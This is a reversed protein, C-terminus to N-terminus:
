GGSPTQLDQALKSHSAWQTALDARLGAMDGAFDNLNASFRPNCIELQHQDKLLSSVTPYREVESKVQEVSGSRMSASFAQAAALDARLDWPSAAAKTAAGM